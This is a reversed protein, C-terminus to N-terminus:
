HCNSMDDEALTHALEVSEVASATTVVQVDNSATQEGTQSPPVPVDDSKLLM